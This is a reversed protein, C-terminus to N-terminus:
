FSIQHSLGFTQPGIWPRLAPGETRASAPASKAQPSLAGVLYWTVGGALVALGGIGVWQGLTQRSRADNGQNELQPSPCQRNPCQKEVDSVDSAAKFYIDAGVGAVVAGVVMTTLPLWVKTLKNKAAQSPETPPAEPPQEGPTTTPQAQGLQAMKAPLAHSPEKGTATQKPTPAAANKTKEEAIRQEFVEIRREIQSREPTDPTRALFARLAIVAQELNGAGEYARALHQLLLTASCDRRYADEWYTIARDYDAEKFSVAGAQYAGKAATVDSESPHTTCDPYTHTDAAWAANSVFLLVSTTLWSCIRSRMVSEEFRSEFGYLLVARLM